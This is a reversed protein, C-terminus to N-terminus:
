LGGLFRGPSLISEPDFAQKVRRMLSWDGREKGWLPTRSKLEAPCWTVSSFGHAAAAAEAMEGTALALREITDPNSEGPLFAAYVVGVARGLLAVPLGHRSGCQQATEFLEGLQSPLVSMRVITAAPSANILLPLTERICQSLAICVNEGPLAFGTAGAERAMAELETAYRRLAAKNGGYGAAVIWAARPLADSPLATEPAGTPARKEFLDVLPANFVELTMPRLPSHRIKQVLEFAGSDGAFSAVMGGTAEPEPYTRFNLRTIVGLTGLSGIFLKHMDYGAVNKVVRGGSKAGIGDGTVFEVGLLFDRVSGYLQRLPSDVGSAVTGGVTAQDLFPVMLPLLQRNQALQNTVMSLRAGADVSVTLDGPDYAAIKDLRTTVLAVDYREPAAGMRLKTGAGVPVVALHHAACFRLIEAIEEASGPRVLAGPARGDIACAALAEPDTSTNAEGAIQSLLRLENAMGSM